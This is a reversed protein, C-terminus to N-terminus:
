GATAEKRVNNSEITEIKIRNLAIRVAPILLVVITMAVEPFLYTANYTLSYELVPTGEPAYEAFFLIGSLVAFVYRGLAGVLYGIMMGYKKNHFFGSLGLAGFAFIYDCLVQPISLITPDVILQLLGYAVAAPFSVVPGFIYGIYTVFFMSFATTSGGNFLKIFKANSLIFAVSLCLASVTLQKVSMKVKTDGKIFHSVLFLVGLIVAVILLKSLNTLEYHGEEAVFKLFLNM